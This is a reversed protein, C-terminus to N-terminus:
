STSMAATGIQGSGATVTVVGLSTSGDLFTVTFNGGAIAPHVTATLTISQGSPAPNLSSMLVTTTQGGAFMLAPAAFLLALSLRSALM